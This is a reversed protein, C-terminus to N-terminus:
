WTHPTAPAIVKSAYRTYTTLSTIIMGVVTYSIHTVCHRRQRVTHSTNDCHGHQRVTHSTNDCHGHQRVTHSTHTVCSQESTGHTFHSNSAVVLSVYRIHSMLTVCQGHQRVTHSTHRLSLGLTFVTRSIRTVSHSHQHVTYFTHTHRFSRTSIRPM